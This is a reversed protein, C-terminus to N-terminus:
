TFCRAVDSYVDRGIFCKFESYKVSRPCVSELGGELEGCRKCVALGGDIVMVALQNRRDYEESTFDKAEYFDHSQYHPVLSM